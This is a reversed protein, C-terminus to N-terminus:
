RPLREIRLGVLRTNTLGVGIDRMREMITTLSRQLTEVNPWVAAKVITELSYCKGDNLKSITRTIRPDTVIWKGRYGIMVNRDADVVCIGSYVETMYREQSTLNQDIGLPRYGPNTPRPKPPQSRGSIPLAQEAEEEALKAASPTPRDFIAKAAPSLAMAKELLKAKEDLQERLRKLNKGERALARDDQDATATSLAVRVLSPLVHLRKAIQAETLLTTSWLELVQDDVSATQEGSTTTESSCPSNRHDADEESSASADGASASADKQARQDGGQDVEAEGQVSSRIAPLSAADDANDGLIIADMEDASMAVHEALAESNIREIKPVEPAFFDSPSDGGGRVAVNGPQIEPFRLLKGSEDVVAEVTRDGEGLDVGVIGPIGGYGVAGMSYVRGHDRDFNWLPDFPVLTANVHGERQHAMEERLLDSASPSAKVVEEGAPEAPSASSTGTTATEERAAQELTELFRQAIKEIDKRLDARSKEPSPPRPLYAEAVNVLALIKEAASFAGSSMLVLQEAQEKLEQVISVSFEKRTM